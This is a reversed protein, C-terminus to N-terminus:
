PEIQTLGTTRDYSTRSRLPGQELDLCQSSRIHTPSMCPVPEVQPLDELEPEGLNLRPRTSHSTRTPSACPVPKVQASDELQSEIRQQALGAARHNARSPELVRACLILCM